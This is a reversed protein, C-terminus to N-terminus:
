AIFDSVKFLFPATRAAYGNKAFDAAAHAPAPALDFGVYGIETCFVGEEGKQDTGVLFAGKYGTADRFAEMEAKELDNPSRALGRIHEVHVILDRSHLRMDLSDQKVNIAITNTEDRVILAITKPVKVYKLGLDIAKSVLYEAEFLANMNRIFYGNWASSNFEEETILCGVLRLNKFFRFLAGEAEIMDMNCSLIAPGRPALPTRKLGCLNLKLVLEKCLYINAVQYIKEKLEQPLAVFQAPEFDCDNNYARELFRDEDSLIVGAKKIHRALQPHGNLLAEGVTREQCVHFSSCCRLITKVTLLILPLILTFYTAVKLATLWCSTEGEKLVVDLSGENVTLVVAQEGGWYFYEDAYEALTQTWSTSLNGYVLPTFYNIGSM